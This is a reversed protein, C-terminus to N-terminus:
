ARTDSMERLASMRAMLESPKGFEVLRGAQLVAVVDADLISEIRHTVEVITWGAFETRMVRQMLAETESDVNSTAEDLVLVRSTKLLSIALALLQRQGASLALDRVQTDM